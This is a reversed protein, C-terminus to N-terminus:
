YSRLLIKNSIAVISGEAGTTKIDEATINVQIEDPSNGTGPNCIFSCTTLDSNNVNTLRGSGSAVYDRSVSGDTKCEFSAPNNYEDIYDIKTVSSGDCTTTIRQANYLGREIVGMAYRIDAHSSMIADSKRSGKFSLALSQTILVSMFAFVAIVVLM